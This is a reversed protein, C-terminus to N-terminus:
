HLQVNEPVKCPSLCENLMNVFKSLSSIIPSKELYLTDYDLHSAIKYCDGLRKKYSRGVTELVKNITASPHEINEIDATSIDYGIIQNIRQITLSEDYKAFFDPVALFWAEIEEVAVVIDINIGVKSSITKFSESLAEVNIKSKNKNGTYSDRLGCVLEFGKSKINDLNDLIYSNVKEDNAADLIRILHTCSEVDTGRPSLKIEQGGHLQLREIHYAQLAVLKEIFTQVFIQETQGEVVILSKRM